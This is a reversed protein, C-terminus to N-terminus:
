SLHQYPNMPNIAQKYPIAQSTPFQTNTFAPVQISTQCRNSGPRRFVPVTNSARNNLTGKSISTRSNPSFLRPSGAFISRPLSLHVHLALLSYNFLPSCSVLPNCTPPKNLLSNHFPQRHLLHYSRGIVRSFVHSLRNQFLRCRSCRPRLCPRSRTM